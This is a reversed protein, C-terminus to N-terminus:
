KLYEDIDNLITLKWQILAFIEINEIRKRRSNVINMIEQRIYKLDATESNQIKDDLYNIVQKADDMRTFSHTQYDWYNLSEEHYKTLKEKPIGPSDLVEVLKNDEFRLNYINKDTDVFEFLGERMQYEYKGKELYFNKTVPLKRLQYGRYCIGWGHWIDKKFFGQYWNGNSFVIRGKGSLQGGQFYGERLVGNSMLLSGPGHFIITKSKRYDDQDICGYYGFTVGKGVSM